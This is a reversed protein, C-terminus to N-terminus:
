PTTRTVQAALAQLMREAAAKHCRQVIRFVRDPDKYGAVILPPEDTIEFVMAEDSLHVLCVKEWAVAHVAKRGKLLVVKNLDLRLIQKTLLRNTGDVPLIVVGPDPTWGDLHLLATDFGSIKHSSAAANPLDGHSIDASDAESLPALAQQVREHLLAVSTQVGLGGCIEAIEELWDSAHHEWLGLAETLMLKRTIDSAEGRARLMLWNAHGIRTALQQQEGPFLALAVAFASPNQLQSRAWVYAGAHRCCPCDSHYPKWPAPVIRREGVASELGELREILDGVCSWGPAYGMRVPNDAVPHFRVKM